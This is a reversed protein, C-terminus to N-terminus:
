YFITITGTDHQLTATLIDIAVNELLLHKRQKQDELSEIKLSKLSHNVMSVLATNLYLYLM